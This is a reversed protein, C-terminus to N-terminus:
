RRLRRHARRGRQPPQRERDEGGSRCAEDRAGVVGHPVVRRRHADGPARREEEHAATRVADVGVQDALVKLQEMAAPRRTDLSAVLVKKREQEKLRKALKGTTTTKGADIHAIIGINRIKELERAM